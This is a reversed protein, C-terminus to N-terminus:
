WPIAQVNDPKALKTNLLKKSTIRETKIKSLGCMCTNELSISIEVSNQSLYKKLVAGFKTFTPQSQGRM